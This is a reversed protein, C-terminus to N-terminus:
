SVRQKQYKIILKDLKQSCSITRNDGLGFQSALTLMNKRVYYIKKMLDNLNDSNQM